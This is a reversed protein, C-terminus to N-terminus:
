KPMADLANKIEPYTMLKTMAGMMKQQIAAMRDKFKEELRKQEEASPEGLAEMRKQIEEAKATLDKLQSELEKAKEPSDIKEILGFLEETLSLSEETVSEHTDSGCAVLGATLLAFVFLRM